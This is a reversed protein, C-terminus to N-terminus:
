WLISLTFLVDPSLTFLVDPSYSATCSLKHLTLQYVAIKYMNHLCAYKSNTVTANRIGTLVVTQNMESEHHVATATKNIM